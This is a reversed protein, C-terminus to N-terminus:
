RRERLHTRWTAAEADTLGPVCTHPDRGMLREAGATHGLGFAHGLEHALTTDVQEPPTSRLESEDVFVVAGHADLDLDAALRATAEVEPLDPSLTLGRLSGLAARAPGERTLRPLVAVTVVDDPPVHADLFARLAGILRDRGHREGPALDLLVGQEIGRTEVVDIVLGAPALLDQAAKVRLGADDATVPLRHLLRVRLTGDVRGEPAGECRAVGSPAQVGADSRREALRPLEPTSMSCALALLWWM